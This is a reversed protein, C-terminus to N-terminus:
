CGVAATSSSELDAAASSFHFKVSVNQFRLGSSLAETVAM